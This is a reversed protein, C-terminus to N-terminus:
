EVTITGTIDFSDLESGDDFTIATTGKTYTVKVTYSTGKIFNADNVVVVLDLSGSTGASFVGTVTCATDNVTVAFDPILAGQLEFDAASILGLGDKVDIYIWGNSIAADIRPGGGGGGTTGNDCWALGLGIVAALAIIGFLKGSNKKM